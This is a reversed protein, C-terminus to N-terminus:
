GASKIIDCTNALRKGLAFCLTKEDNTIDFTNNPGAVHTAGYPTGGGDTTMLDTEQYPLGMIIMGHHLLPLMMSLLTSEQGGHPSSTSTFVAAPKGALTGSLWIDTTSDIFYKLPSAMNGFYAPSGLVLGDCEQLDSHSAYPPGSAPIDDEGTECLASIQPVTRLRATCDTVSEIGHAIDRAMKEVSGHRSYYLVLIDAM